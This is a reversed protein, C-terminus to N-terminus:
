SIKYGEDLPVSFHASFWDTAQGSTSKHPKMHVSIYSSNQIIMFGGYAGASGVGMIWIREKSTDFSPNGTIPIRAIEIEDSTDITNTSGVGVIIYLIDNKVRWKNLTYSSQSTGIYEDNTWSFDKWGTDYFSCVNNNENKVQLPGGLSEDYIGGFCVGKDKIASMLVKGSNIEITEIDESLEDKVRIQVDYEVGLEFDDLSPAYIKKVSNFSGNETNIEFLYLISEWDEWTSLTKKKKRFDISKISNTIKGFNINSYKGQVTIEVNTGIGGEREVLVSQLLCETYNVVNLSKTVSAQNNRSDIAFVSITNSNINNITTSINSTSYNLSKNADGAIVNYSKATASNKTTMKNASTITVKANSYKKIYKNKDGTLNLTKTNVDEVDFNSFTPNSNTVNATFSVSSSGINTSGSYTTLTVKGTAKNANPVFKYLETTGWSYSAGVNTQTRVTKGNFEIKATHTFSSSARNTNITITKGINFNTSSLSVKSTRPITTLTKSTSASLVGNPLTGTMGTKISFSASVTKKGEANHTVTVTKSFITKTSNSPFTTSFSYDKGDITITGTRTYGDYSPGSMTATGKVTISSTNNAINQSNQTISISGKVAM